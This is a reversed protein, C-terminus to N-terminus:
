PATKEAQVWTDIPTKFNTFAGANPFHFPHTSGAGPDPAIYFGSQNTDVLNIRSKVQACTVDPKTDIMTLDMASVASANGTNGHCSSCNTKLQPTASTMFEPLKKCAGPDTTTGTDPVYPSVVKFHIEIPDTPTFGAFSHTGGDLQDTKSAALNEKVDFLRDLQDPYPGAAKLSVFLPHELYVGSSGGSLTLNTVYLSSLAQATFTIEVGALMPGIQALDGLSAHNIPCTADGPAGSTCIMPTFSKTSYIITPHDPDHDKADKEAQLWGLIASSQSATLAPGDHLGKSLIRSSVPADFNVVSPSYAELATKVTTADAGQLFAIGSRSGNHCGACNTQLVPYADEEWRQNADRQQDTQGDSGGSILGTCGVAAFMLIAGASLRVMDLHRFLTELMAKRSQLPAGLNKKLSPLSLM